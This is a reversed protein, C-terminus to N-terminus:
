GDMSTLLLCRNHLHNLIKENTNIVSNLSGLKSLFHSALNRKLIDNIMVIIRTLIYYIYLIYM